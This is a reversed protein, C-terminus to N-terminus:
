VELGPLPHTVGKLLSEAADAFRGPAGAPDLQRAVREAGARM